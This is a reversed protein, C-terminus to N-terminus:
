VTSRGRRCGQKGQFLLFDPCKKVLLSVWLPHTNYRVSITVWLAPYVWFIDGALLLKEWLSTKHMNYELGHKWSAAGTQLSWHSAARPSRGAWPWWGAAGVAAGPRWGARRGCSSEDASWVLNQQEWLEVAPEVKWIGREPPKKRMCSFLM